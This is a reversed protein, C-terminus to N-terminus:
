GAMEEQQPTLHQEPGTGPTPGLGQSDTHTPLNPHISPVLDFQPEELPWLTVKPISIIAGELFATLPQFSTTRSFCWTCLLCAIFAALLIIIIKEVVCSASWEADM